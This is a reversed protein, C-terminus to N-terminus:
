AAIQERELSWKILLWHSAAFESDQDSMPRSLASAPAPPLRVFRSGLTSFLQNSFSFTLINLKLYKERILLIDQFELYVILWLGSWFILNIKLFNIIKHEGGRDM